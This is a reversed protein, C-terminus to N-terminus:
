ARDLVLVNYLIINVNVVIQRYEYRKYTITTLQVQWTHCFRSSLGCERLPHPRPVLSRTAVEIILFPRRPWPFTFLLSYSLFSLKKAFGMLRQLKAFVQRTNLEIQQVCTTRQCYLPVLCFFLCVVTVRACM